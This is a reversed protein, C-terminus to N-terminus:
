KAPLWRSFAALDKGAPVYWKKKEKNWSAGLASARDKEEMPVDLYIETEAAATHAATHQRHPPNLWKMFPETDETNGPVYWSTVGKRTYKRAGLAKLQEYDSPHVGHLKLPNTKTINGTLVRNIDSTTVKIGLDKTAWEAIKNAGFGKAIATTIDDKM